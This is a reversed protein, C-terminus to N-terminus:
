NSLFHRVIMALTGGGGLTAITKWRYQKHSFFFWFGCFIMVSADFPNEPMRATVTDKLMTKRAETPITHRRWLKVEKAEPQGPEQDM